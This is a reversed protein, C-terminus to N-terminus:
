RRWLLAAYYGCALCFWHKSLKSAVVKWLDVTVVFKKKKETLFLILIEPELEPFQLEKEFTGRFPQCSWVEM